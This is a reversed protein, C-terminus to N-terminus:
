FTVNVGVIFTRSRPYLNNDIGSFVEPDLGSYDTIVFLNQVTGYLRFRASTDFLNTATYGLSLNDMRLFSAKEVYYDSFYQPATFNTELVSTLMNRPVFNDNARIFNATNSAVNNYVYNGLSSRLTFSLDFKKYNIQSTLGFMVKPARQQFPRRDQDNVIGDGSVDEYM